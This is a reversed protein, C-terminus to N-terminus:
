RRSTGFSGTQGSQSHFWIGAGASSVFEDPPMPSTFLEAGPSSVFPFDKPSYQNQGRSVTMRTGNVRKKTFPARVDPRQDCGGHPAIIFSFLTSSTKLLHLGRASSSFDRFTPCVTLGRNIPTICCPADDKDFAVDNVKVGSFLIRDDPTHHFNIRLNVTQINFV